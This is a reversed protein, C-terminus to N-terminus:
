DEKEIKENEKLEDKKPEVKKEENFSVGKVIVNVEAIHYETMAEVNHKINEQVRFAVEPVSYSSDVVVYVDVYVGDKEPRVKVSKVASKSKGEHPLYVEVGEIESVALIVINDLIGEGYVIKGEHIQSPIKKFYSM